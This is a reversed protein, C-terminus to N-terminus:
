IRQNKKNLNLNKQNKKKLIKKPFKEFTSIRSIFTVLTAVSCWFFSLIPWFLMILERKKPCFLWSRLDFGEAPVLVLGAYQATDELLEM